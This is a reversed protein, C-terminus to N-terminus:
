YAVYTIFYRRFNSVLRGGGLDPRAEREGVQEPLVVRRLLLPRHVVHSHHRIQCQLLLPRRPLNPPRHPFRFEDTFFIFCQTLGRGNLRSMGICYGILTIANVTTKKTYGATVM